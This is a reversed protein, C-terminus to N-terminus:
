ARAGFVGTGIRVLTSGEAIAADFDASMGMSLVRRCASPLTEWLERLRAFAARTATEGAGHPGIGMLGHVALGPLEELQDVLEKAREPEVGGQGVAGAINVQVLVQIIRGSEAARRSLAQGLQRSDVSQILDFWRVAAAAKNRQLQGILHRTVGTSTDPGSNLGLEAFKVAAEQVYNEGLETVGAALVERIAAVSQRKSVAVLRVETADRGAAAAAQEIRERLRVLNEGVTNSM